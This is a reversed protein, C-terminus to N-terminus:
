GCGHYARQGPRAAQHSRDRHRQAGGSEDSLGVARVLLAIGLDPPEDEVAHPVDVYTLQRLAEVRLRGGALIQQELGEAEDAVGRREDIAIVQVARLQLAVHDADAHEVPQAAIAVRLHVRHDSRASPAHRHRELDPLVRRRPDRRQADQVVGRHHGVAAAIRQRQQVGAVRHIERQEIRHPHHPQLLHPILPVAVRDDIRRRAGIGDALEAPDVHLRVWFPERADPRDLDAAVLLDGLARDAVREGKALPVQIAALLHQLALAVQVLRIEEAEDGDARRPAVADLRDLHLHDLRRQM